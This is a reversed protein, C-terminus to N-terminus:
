ATSKAIQADLWAIIESQRWYRRRAIYIPRPFSLEPDNLWRWLTMDSVGGCFERVASSPIRKHGSVANTESGTAIGEACTRALGSVGNRLGCAPSAAIRKETM